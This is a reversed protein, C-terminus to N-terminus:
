LVRPNNGRCNWIYDHIQTQNYKSILNICKLIFVLYISSFKLPLLKTFDEKNIDARSYQGTFAINNKYFRIKAVSYVTGGHLVGIGGDYDVEIGSIVM